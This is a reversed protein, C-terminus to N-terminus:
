QKQIRPIYLINLANTKNNQEFKKWDKVGDPFDIGEWNYQDIFHKINSIIEPHTKINQRNLVVTISFQFCKNDKNKQNITARKNTVWEPAKTYLKGRKLSIKHVSYCM